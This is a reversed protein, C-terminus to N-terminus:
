FAADDFASAIEAPAHGFKSISKAVGGAFVEVGASEVYFNIALDRKSFLEAYFSVLDTLGAM